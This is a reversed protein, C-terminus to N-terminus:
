LLADAKRYHHHGDAKHWKQSPSGDAILRSLCQGSGDALGHHSGNGSAPLLRYRSLYTDDKGSRKTFLPRRKPTSARLMAVVTRGASSCYNECICNKSFRLCLYPNIPICAVMSCEFFESTAIFFGLAEELISFPQLLTPFTQLLFFFLQHLIPAFTFANPFIAFAFRIKQSPSNVFRILM